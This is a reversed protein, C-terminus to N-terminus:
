LTNMPRIKKNVSASQESTGVLMKLDHLSLEISKESIAELHRILPNRAFFYAKLLLNIACNFDLDTSNSSHGVKLYAILAMKTMQTAIPGLSTEIGRQCREILFRLMHSRFTQGFRRAVINGGLNITTRDADASHEWERFDRCLYDESALSEESFHVGQPSFVYVQNDRRLMVYNRSDIVWIALFEVDATADQQGM